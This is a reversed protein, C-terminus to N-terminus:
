YPKETHTLMGTRDQGHSSGPHIRWRRRKSFFSYFFRFSCFFCLLFFLFAFCFCYFLAHRTHALTSATRWPTSYTRADRVHTCSIILRLFLSFNQNAPPAPTFRFHVNLLHTTGTHTMLYNTAQDDTWKPFLSRPNSPSILSSRYSM